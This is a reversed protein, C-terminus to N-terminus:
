PPRLIVSSKEKSGTSRVDLLQSGPIAGRAYTRWLMLTTLADSRVCRMSFRVTDEIGPDKRFFM